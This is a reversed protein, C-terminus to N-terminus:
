FAYNSQSLVNLSPSSTMRQIMWCSVGPLTAAWRSATPTRWLEWLGCSCRYETTHQNCVLLFLNKGPSQKFMKILSMKERLHIWDLKNLKGPRSPLDMLTGFIWLSTPQPRNPTKPCLSRNVWRAPCRCAPWMKGEKSGLCFGRRSVKNGVKDTPFVPSIVPM